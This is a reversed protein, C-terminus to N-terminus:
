LQRMMQIGNGGIYQPYTGDWKEIRMQELIQPTITQSRLQNAKAEAEAEVVKQQAKAQAVKVKEEATQREQVATVKAQIALSLAEPPTLGSTCEGLNFNEEKLAKRLRQEVADEFQERNSMLEDATFKNLENRYANYIIPELTGTLVQELELRYKKFIEPAKGNAISMQITPDVIFKLGDKSQLEFAKYDVTQVYTPYEYVKTTLPNYFVWGTVLSIDSVGRKSGYLNVKIGECGADIRECSTFTMSFATFLILAALKFTNKLIKM